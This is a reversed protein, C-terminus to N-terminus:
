KEFAGYVVNKLSIRIRARNVVTQARFVTFMNEPRDVRFTTGGAGSWNMEGVSGEYPVVGGETRVAFGLGFGPGPVYHPGPM